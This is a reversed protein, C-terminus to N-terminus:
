LMLLYIATIMNFVYRWWAPDQFESHPYSEYCCHCTIQSSEGTGSLRPPQPYSIDGIAVSSITSLAVHQWEAGLRDRFEDIQLTPPKLGSTQTTFGDTTSTPADDDQDEQTIPERREPGDDRIEMQGNDSGLLRRTARQREGRSQIDFYRQQISKALLRRLNFPTAPYLHQLIRNPIGGMGFTPQQKALLARVTDLLGTISPPKQITEGLSYLEAIDKELSRQANLLDTALNDPAHNGRVDRNEDDRIQAVQIVPTRSLPPVLTRDQFHSVM